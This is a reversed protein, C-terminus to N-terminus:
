FLTHLISLYPRTKQLQPSGADVNGCNLVESSEIARGCGDTKLM